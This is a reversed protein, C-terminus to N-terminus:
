SETTRRADRVVTAIAGAGALSLALVAIWGLLPILAVIAAVFAGLLALGAKPLVTEPMPNGLRLWIGVGLIYSGMVYGAYGILGALLLAAFLLPIGIVTLALVFGAGAVVSVLLFGAVLSQGPHALARARWEAVHAPAVAVAAAAFAAVTLVSVIFGTVAAGWAARRMDDFGGPMADDVEIDRVEVRDAPAVREPIAVPTEGDEVYVIVRGAVTADNGFEARDVALMLDGAVPADLRMDEAAIMASAGLSGSIDVARAFARLNGGIAADITIEAAALMAPGAVDATVEIEYAAGYLRGTPADVGLLRAALHAAGGVGSDVSIDEAAAFLDGPTEVAIQLDNGAIFRDGAFDLLAPDDDQAAAPAAVAMAAAALIPLLRFM